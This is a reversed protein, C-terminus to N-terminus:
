LFCKVISPVMEVAWLGQKLVKRWYFFFILFFFGLAWPSIPQNQHHSLFYKVHDQLMRNHWFTLFHSGLFFLLPLSQGLFCSFSSRTALALVIQPLFCLVLQNYACFSYTQTWVPTFLYAFSTASVFEWHLFLVLFKHPSQGSHSPASSGEGSTCAACLVKRGFVVFSTLRTWCLFWLRARARHGLHVYSATLPGQGHIGSIILGSHDEWRFCRGPCLCLLMM